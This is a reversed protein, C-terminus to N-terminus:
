FSILHFRNLIVDVVAFYHQVKKLTYLTSVLFKNHRIQWKEASFFRCMNVLLFMILKRVNYINSFRTNCKNLTLVVNTSKDRSKGRVRLTYKNLPNLTFLNDWPARTNRNSNKIISNVLKTIQQCSSQQVLTLLPFCCCCYRCCYSYFFVKLKM